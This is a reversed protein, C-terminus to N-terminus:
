QRSVSCCGLLVVMPDRQLEQVQVVRTQADNGLRSHPTYRLFESQLQGNAASTDYVRERPDAAARKKSLAQELAKRTAEVTEKEKDDAPRVLSERDVRKEVMDEYRTYAVQDPRMRQRVIASSLDAEGVETGSSTSSVVLANSTGTKRASKRGMGRPYQRFHLEPFAGGNGFDAPRIPRFGKRRGYSPIRKAQVPKVEEVGARAGGGLVAYDHKPKPLIANLSAM